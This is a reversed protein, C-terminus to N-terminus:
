RILLGVLYDYNSGIAYGIFFFVASVAILRLLYDLIIM